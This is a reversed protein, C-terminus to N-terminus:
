IENMPPYAIAPTLIEEVQVTGEEPMNKLLLHEEIKAVARNQNRTRQILNVGELLSNM